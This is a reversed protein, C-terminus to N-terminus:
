SEMKCVKDSLQQNDLALYTSEDSWNTSGTPPGDSSDNQTSPSDSSNPPNNPSPPSKPDRSGSDPPAPPDSDPSNETLNIVVVKKRNLREQWEREADSHTFKDAWYSDPFSVVKPSSSSKLPKNTEIAEAIELAEKESESQRKQRKRMM